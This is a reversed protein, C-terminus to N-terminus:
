FIHEGICVIVEEIMIHNFENAKVFVDLEEQNAYTNLKALTKIGRFQIIGNYMMTLGGTPLCELLAKRVPFKAVINTLKSM